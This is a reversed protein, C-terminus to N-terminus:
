SQAGKPFEGIAAVGEDSLSYVETSIPYSANLYERVVVKGVRGTFGQHRAAWLYLFDRDPAVALLPWGLIPEVVERLNPALILSSKMPIDTTLYGLRVGDIDDFEIESAELERALNEFGARAAEAETLGASALMQPTVWTLLSRDPALHILVRDVCKSIEVRFDAKEVYDNPELCWFLDELCVESDTPSNGALIADVFRPIRGLDGDSRLDKLLNEISIMMQGTSTAIHYRGSESDIEFSLGRRFLEAEFEKRGDIM